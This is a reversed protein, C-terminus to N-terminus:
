EDGFPTYGETTTDYNIPDIVEGGREDFYKNRQPDYYASGLFLYRVTEMSELEEQTVRMIM